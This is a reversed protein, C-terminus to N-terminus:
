LFRKKQRHLAFVDNLTGLVNFYNWELLVEIIKLLKKLSRHSNCVFLFFGSQVKVTLSINNIKKSNIM